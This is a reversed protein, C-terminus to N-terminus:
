QIYFRQVRFNDFDSVYLNGYDDFAIDSPRYLQYAHPGPSNGGAIVDGKSTGKRWRIIAYKSWDAIYVTGQNDVALGQPYFSTVSHTIYSWDSVVIVGQKAGRMWKMVRCNGTDSVYITGESDVAIYTPERLQRPGNLERPSEQHEGNGGAVVMGTISGEPYRVVTGKRANIVYLAGASDMTFGKCDIMRLIEEGETAGRELSWRIVRQNGSDCIFLSDTKEDLLLDKPASLQNLQNRKGGYGAVILGESAGMMWKMVRHNKTDCVYLTGDSDLAVNRPKFLQHPGNGAENGGAVVNGVTSEKPYRRVEHTVDDTIYLTGENDMALGYCHINDIITKGHTTGNKLSWRMVRRNRHNETDCVYITGKSDVAVNYSNDIQHLDSGMKNTGTVVTGPTVDSPYRRVENKSQVTVYLAGEYDMALGYCHINDIFTKGQTTETALSWRIVRENKPDCIIISNSKEDILVDTPRMLQDLENDEIGHGAVVIGKVAEKMWKMLRHNGTDCVYITGKSDVVVNYPNDLQHLDSGVKNRGAVVASSTIDSAYRRVENESYITVYLAGEYDMALAHCSIDDIVTKGRTTGNKLSWRMVRQNGYDCIFLLNAKRNLLIDIPENLQQSNSGQGGHGAVIIGETAEKTWKMVRHNGTDAVYVTGKIDVAISRPSDLQDFDDGRDNGGAVVSSTSYGECYRKVANEHLDTVYLAREDDMALGVCHINTIITKSETTGKELSWRIVRRNMLDCIIIFNNKEDLLVDIPYHLQHAGNGAVPGGAIVRGNIDAATSIVIQNNRIGAIYVTGDHTNVALGNPHNSGDLVTVGNQKWQTNTSINLTQQNRITGNRTIGILEISVGVSLRATLLAYSSPWLYPDWINALLINQLIIAKSENSRLAINCENKYQASFAVDVNGVLVSWSNM